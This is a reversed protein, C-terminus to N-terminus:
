RRSLRTIPVPSYLANQMQMHPNQWKRHLEGAMANLHIAGM